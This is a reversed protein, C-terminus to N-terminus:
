SILYSGLSIAFGGVSHCDDPNSAWNANSFGHLLFSFWVPHIVKSYCYGEPLSSYAERCDLLCLLASAHVPLCTSSCLLYRAQNLHSLPSLWRDSLLSLSTLSSWWWLHFSSIQLFSFCLNTKCDLMAASDLLTHIYKSQTLFLGDTCDYVEINPFHHLTGLDKIAFEKSLTSLLM